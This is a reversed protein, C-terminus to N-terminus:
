GRGWASKESIYHGWASKESIYHGWASKESIYHHATINAFFRGPSSALVTGFAPPPIAWPYHPTCLM